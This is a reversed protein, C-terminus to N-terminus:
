TGLEPVAQEGQAEGAHLAHRGRLLSAHQQGREDEGGEDPEGAPPDPAASGLTRRDCVNINLKLKM